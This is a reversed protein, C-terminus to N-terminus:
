ARVIEIGDYYVYSNSSSGVFGRVKQSMGWINVVQISFICPPDERMAATAQHLYEERKKADLERQSKVYADNFATNVYNPKSGFAKDAYYTLTFDPDPIPASWPAYFLPARGGEFLKQRWVAIELARLQARVGVAGFYQMMAEALLKSEPTNTNYEIVTEFGNAYGAATLLDKAKKPDYEYPKLAPNFGFFSRPILQGDMVRGYGRLLNKLIAEKDVAHNLAQRVRKDSTPEKFYEVDWNYSGGGDAVVATLGSENKLQDATDRDVLDVLDVEGTRLAAARTTAEPM